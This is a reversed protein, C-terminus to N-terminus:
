KWQNNNMFSAKEQTSGGVLIMQYDRDTHRNIGCIEYYLIAPAVYAVHATTVPTLPTISLSDIKKYLANMKINMHDFVNAEYLGGTKPTSLVVIHNRKPLFQM